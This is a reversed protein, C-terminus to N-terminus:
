YMDVKKLGTRGGVVLVLPAPPNLKARLGVGDEISELLNSVFDDCAWWEHSSMFLKIRLYLDVM